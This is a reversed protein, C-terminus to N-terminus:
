FCSLAYLRVSRKKVKLFMRFKYKKYMAPLATVVWTSGCFWLIALYPYQVAVRLFGLGVFFKSILEFAPYRIKEYSKFFDIVVEFLTVVVSMIYYIWYFIKNGYKDGIIAQYHFSHSQGANSAMEFNNRFDDVSMEYNPADYGVTSPVKDSSFKFQFLGDFPMYQIEFNEFTQRVPTGEQRRSFLNWFHLYFKEGPGPFSNSHYVMIILEDQNGKGDKSGYRFTGKHRKGTTPNLFEAKYYRTPTDALASFFM